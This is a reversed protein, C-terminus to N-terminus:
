CDPQFNAACVDFFDPVLRDGPSIKCAGEGFSEERPDSDLVTNKKPM